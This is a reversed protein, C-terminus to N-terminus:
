NQLQFVTRLQRIVFVPNKHFMNKGHILPTHSHRNQQHHSNDGRQQGDKETQESHTPATAIIRRVEPGLQPAYQHKDLNLHFAALIDVWLRRIHKHCVMLTSVVNIKYIAIQVVVELPHHLLTQLFNRKDACGAAYRLM